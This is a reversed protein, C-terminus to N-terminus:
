VVVKGALTSNVEMVKHQVITVFLEILLFFDHYIHVYIEDVSASDCVNLLNYTPRIVPGM